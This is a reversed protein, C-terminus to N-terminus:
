DQPRRCDQLVELRGQPPYALRRINHQLENNTPEDFVHTYELSELSARLRGHSHLHSSLICSVNARHHKNPSTYPWLLHLFFSSAACVFSSLCGGYATLFRFSRPYLKATVSQVLNPFFLCVKSTSTFTSPLLPTTLRLQEFLLLCARSCSLANRTADV